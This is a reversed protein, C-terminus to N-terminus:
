TCIRDDDDDDDDDDTCKHGEFLLLVTSLNLQCHEGVGREEKGMVQEGRKLGIKREGEWRFPLLDSCVILKAM